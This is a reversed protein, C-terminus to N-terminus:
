ILKKLFDIRLKGFFDPLPSTEFAQDAHEVTGIVFPLRAAPRFLILFEVAIAKTTVLIPASLPM